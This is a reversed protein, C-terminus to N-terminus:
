TVVYAAAAARGRQERLLLTLFLAVLFFLSCLLIASRLGLRVQLVGLSLLGFISALKGFLGWFGFFEAAKSEPGFYAASTIFLRGESPSPDLRAQAGGVTSGHFVSCLSVNSLIAPIATSWRGRPMVIACGGGPVQLEAVPSTV